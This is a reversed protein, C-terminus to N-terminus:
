GKQPGQVRKLFQSFTQTRQGWFIASYVCLCNQVSNPPFRLVKQNLTAKTEGIKGKVKGVAIQDKEGVKLMEIM